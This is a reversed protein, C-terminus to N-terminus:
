ANHRRIIGFLSLCGTSSTFARYIGGSVSKMEKETLKTCSLKELNM